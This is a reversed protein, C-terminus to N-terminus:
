SLCRDNIAFLLPITHYYEYVEQAGIQCNEFLIISEKCESEKGSQNKIELTKKINKEVLCNKYFNEM